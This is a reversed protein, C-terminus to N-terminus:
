RRSMRQANRPIVVDFQLSLQLSAVYGDRVTEIARQSFQIELRRLEARGNPIEDVTEDAVVDEVVAPQDDRMGAHLRLHLSPAGCLGSVEGQEALRGALRVFDAQGNAGGRCVCITASC